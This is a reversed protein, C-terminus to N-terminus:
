VQFFETLSAAIEAEDAGNIDFGIEEGCAAGLSIIGIISKPNVSMDGKSMAIDSAAKQCIKVLDAAPRAHLGEKFPVTFSLKM